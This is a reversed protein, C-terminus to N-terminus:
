DDQTHFLAYFSELLHKKKIHMTEARAGELTWLLTEQKLRHMVLEVNELDTFSYKEDFNQVEQHLESFPRTFDPFQARQEAFGELFFKKVRSLITPLLPSVSTALLIFKIFPPHEELVKLLANQHVPLMTDVQDLVFYRFPEEFPVLSAEQILLRITEMSYTKSGSEVTFFMLDPHDTAKRQLLSRCFDGAEELLIEKKQGVLLLPSPLPNQEKLSRFIPNM